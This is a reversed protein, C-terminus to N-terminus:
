KLINNGDASLIKRSVLLGLYLALREPEFAPFAARVEDVSLPTRTQKFFMFLDTLHRAGVGTQFSTPFKSLDLPCCKFNQNLLIESSMIYGKKLTSDLASLVPTDTKIFSTEQTCPEKFPCKSLSRSQLAEICSNSTSPAIPTSTRPPSYSHMESFAISSTNVVINEASAKWEGSLSLNKMHQLPDKRKIQFLTFFNEWVQLIQYFYQANQVLKKSQQLM